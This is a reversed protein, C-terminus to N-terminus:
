RSKTQSSSTSQSDKKTSHKMLANLSENLSVPTSPDVFESPLPVLRSSKQHPSPAKPKTPVPIPALAPHDSPLSSPVVSETEFSDPTPNDPKRKPTEGDPTPAEPISFDAPIEIPDPSAQEPEATEDQPLLTNEDPAVAPQSADFNTTSVEDPLTCDFGGALALYLSVRILVLELQASLLERQLSQQTTLASLVDLYEVDGILYQERLQISSQGALRVQEKLHTIRKLQYVEQTLSDEVERFAILMTQAYDNFRQSVVASTRDVEARRLGGDFLPAILQGGISVFWDRFITEPHDALNEVSGTLNIRPYLTSIASALDRDAAQFLSLDRLVDPRRHLLESPLGADPMPPLGPLQSGTEYTATQPMEGLLVALQHELLEIRAQAVVMQELTSELLQRQRLVDASRILGLGFRLEQLELGTRNNKIQTELLDVQANAEILSFWNRAIEASLILGIAQYDYCTANARFREADVRSEIEGWVDVQYASDLGFRFVSSDDGPGFLGGVGIIGDLDPFLDSAERRVVARAARVRYIASALSYNDNFAQRIRDHLRPQDFAIWWPDPLVTEGSESFLPAEPVDPNSLNRGACGCVVVLITAIWM